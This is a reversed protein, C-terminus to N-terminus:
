VGGKLQNIAITKYDRETCFPTDLFEYFTMKYFWGRKNVWQALPILNRDKSNNYRMIYCFQGRSRLYDARFLDEEFTTNFGTLIYWGARKIGNRQMLNIAVVVSNFDAPNDWAFFPEAHRISKLLDIIDQNLLRHDLGQTFDLRIKHKRAQECIYEFHNPVALINNDLLTINKNRGDGWLDLLDGVVKISGEKQPVICFPCKRICGRTTFGLNIRPRVAEIEAPLKSEIDFGSGGINVKSDDEWFFCKDRNAEFICSVYIRDAINRYLPIDWVIEDGEQQHYKEIKALAYNKIKSDINIILIRM